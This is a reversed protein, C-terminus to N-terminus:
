RHSRREIKAARSNAGLQLHFTSQPQRLLIDWSALDRVTSLFAASPRVAIWNEANIPKGEAQDYGSARGPVIANTLPRTAHLGAPAFVRQSVFEEWPKGTTKEIIQALVYYGVNSYLLKDGPAFSLPLTYASTIVAM